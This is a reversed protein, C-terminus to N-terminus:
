GDTQGWMTGGRIMQKKVFMRALLKYLRAKTTAANKGSQILYIYIFSGYRTMLNTFMGVVM